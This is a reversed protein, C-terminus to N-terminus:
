VGGGVGIGYSGDCNCEYWEEYCQGCMGRTCNCDYQSERCLHCRLYVRPEDKSKKGKSPEYPTISNAQGSLYTVGGGYVPPVYEDVHLEFAETWEKKQEPTVHDYIITTLDSQFVPFPAGQYIASLMEYKKNFVTATIWGREGESYITDMDTQSWFVGMNVHSHWWWKLGEKHGGQYVKAELDGKSAACIETTTATNKQDLLHVTTVWFQGNVIKGTGYGSVEKDAKNVWFMVKEYIIRPIVIDM